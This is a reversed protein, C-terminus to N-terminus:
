LKYAILDWKTAVSEACLTMVIPTNEEISDPLQNESADAIGLCLGAATNYLPTDVDDTHKWEQLGGMEHCKALHPKHQSSEPSELCLMEALLLEGKDTESWLQKKTRACKTLILSSGKDTVERLSQVCLSTGSVRIQYTGIYNKNHFRRRPFNWTRNASKDVKQASKDEKGPIQLEPYVNKLYWEFSQCNM